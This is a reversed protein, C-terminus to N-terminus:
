KDLRERELWYWYAHASNQHYRKRTLLKFKKYELADYDMDKGKDRGVILPNNAKVMEMTLDNIELQLNFDTIAQNHANM